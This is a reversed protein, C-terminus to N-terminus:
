FTNIIIKIAINRTILLTILLHGIGILIIQNLFQM